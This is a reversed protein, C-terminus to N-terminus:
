LAGREAKHSGKKAVMRSTLKRERRPTARCMKWGSESALVPGVVGVEPGGPAGSDSRFARPGQCGQGHCASTVLPSNQGQSTKYQSLVVEGLTESSFLFHHLALSRRPVQIARARSGRRVVDLLSRSRTPSGFRANGWREGRISSLVSSFIGRLM